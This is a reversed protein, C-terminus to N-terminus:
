KGAGKVVVIPRFAVKNSPLSVENLVELLSKALKENHTYLFIKDYSATIPKRKEEIVVVPLWPRPLQVWTPYTFAIHAGKKLAESIVWSYPLKQPKRNEKLAKINALGVIDLIYYDNRYSLYGIDHAVAGTRLFKSLYHMFYHQLYIDEVADVIKSQYYINMYFLPMISVLWLVFLARKTYWLETVRYSILNLVVLTGLVLFPVGYRGIGTMSGFFMFLLLNTIGWVGLRKREREGEPLFLVMSVITILIILMTMGYNKITMNRYFNFVIAELLSEKGPIGVVSKALVSSPLLIGGNIYLFLSFSGLFVIVVAVISAALKINGLFPLSSVTVALGEYRVLPALILSLLALSRSCSGDFISDRVVKYAILITLVQLLHEMGSFLLYFSNGVVVFIFWVLVVSLELPYGEQSLIQTGLYFILFILITNVLLPTIIHWKFGAFPAFIFPWIISSSPASFEDKNIGYGGRAIEESVALHIYADDLLYFNKGSTRSFIQSVYFTLFLVIFLNSVVVTKKIGM